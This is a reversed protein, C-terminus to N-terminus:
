KSYEQRSILERSRAARAASPTTVVRAGARTAGRIVEVFDRGLALGFQDSVDVRVVWPGPGPQPPVRGYFAHGKKRFKV